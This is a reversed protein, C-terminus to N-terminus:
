SDRCAACLGYLHLQHDTLEFNAQQAVAIQRAEIVEDVFEQVHGCRVCVMHDHHGGEDLEYVASDGEFQHKIIIGAQEFQGLTRYVTALGIDDGNALLQQHIEEARWHGKDKKSLLALIKQRPVTVRLGLQRIDNSSM